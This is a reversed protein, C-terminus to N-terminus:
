VFTCDLNGIGIRELASNGLQKAVAIGALTKHLVGVCRQGLMLACGRACGRQNVLKSGLIKPQTSKSRPSGAVAPGSEFRPYIRASRFIAALKGQASHHCNRYQGAKTVRDDLPGPCRGKVATVRTRIGNPDSGEHILTARCFAYFMHMVFGSFNAMTRLRAATINKGARNRRTKRELRRVRALLPMFLM